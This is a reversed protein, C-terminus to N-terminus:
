LDLNFKYGRM